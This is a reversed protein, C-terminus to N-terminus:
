FIDSHTGTRVFHIMAPSLRYILLWDPQIHCERHNKYNGSLPHDLYREPLSKGNALMDILVDLEEIPMGRKISLKYDKKFRGTFDIQRRM